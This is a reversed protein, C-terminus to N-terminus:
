MTQVVSESPSATATAAVIIEPDVRAAGIKMLLSTRKRHRPSVTPMGKIIEAHLALAPLSGSLRATNRMIAGFPSKSLMRNPIFYLSSELILGDALNAGYTPAASTTFPSETRYRRSGVGHSGCVSAGDDNKGFCDARSMATSAHSGAFDSSSARFFHSKSATVNPLCDDAGTLHKSYLCCTLIRAATVPLPEKHRPVDLMGECINPLGLPCHTYGAIRLIKTVESRPTM